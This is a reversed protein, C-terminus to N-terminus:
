NLTSQIVPAAIIYALAIITTWFSSGGTIAAGTRPMTAGVDVRAHSARAGLAWGEFPSTTTHDCDAAVNSRGCMATPGLPQARPIPGNGIVRVSAGRLAGVGGATSPDSGIDNYWM